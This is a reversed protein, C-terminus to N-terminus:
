ILTGGLIYYRLNHKRCVRDLESLIELETLQLKRLKRDSEEKKRFAELIEQEIYKKADDPNTSELQSKCVEFATEAATALLFNDKESILNKNEKM